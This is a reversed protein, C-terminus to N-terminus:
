RAKKWDSTRPSYDDYYHALACQADALGQEAAKTYWKVAEIRNKEVDIGNFYCNGLEYQAEAYGQEAAEQFWVRAETLDTDVGEANLFCLGLRYKAVPNGQEAAAVFRDIASEKDGAEFLAMGAKFEEEGPYHREAKVRGADEGKTKDRATASASGNQVTSSQGGDKTDVIVAVVVFALYCALVALVPWLIKKPISM